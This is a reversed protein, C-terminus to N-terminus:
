DYMLKASTFATSYVLAFAATKLTEASAGWNTGDLKRVLNVRANVKKAKTVGLYKSHDVHQVETDVFKIDLMKAKENTSLHFVFSETKTTSKTAFALSLFV